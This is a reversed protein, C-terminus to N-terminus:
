RGNGSRRLMAMRRAHDAELHRLAGRFTLEGSRVQDMLIRPRSDTARFQAPPTKATPKRRTPQALLDRLVASTSAFPDNGITM